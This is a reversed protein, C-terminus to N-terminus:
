KLVKHILSKFPTSATRGLPCFSTKEMAAFLDELDKRHIRSANVMELIRYTGERCPTCKDCNNESLFKAWKIMLQRLNTNKKHYVVISGVGMIPAAALEEQLFIEGSVGGGVQAFFKFEPYNGTQKLVQEASLGMALEFVGQHAVDGSISYLRKSQYKGQAIQWAYYFTEVNNILTPYGWLGKQTPYPPKVRPEQYEGEITNLLATEEGGIYRGTKKFLGISVNGIEQKLRSAYNNFYNENLYLLGQQAGICDMALRIGSLLDAPFNKIIYEDKFVDPEGESANCVVYKKEAAENRVAEWKKWTPYGAGGRGSLNAEKLKSIIDDM